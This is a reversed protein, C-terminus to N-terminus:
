SIGSMASASATSWFVETQIKGIIKAKEESMELVDGSHLIFINEKRIGLSEALLAQAQMHRREGHISDCIKTLLAYM